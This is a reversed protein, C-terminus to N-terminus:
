AGAGTRRQRRHAAGTRAAEANLVTQAAGTDVVAIADVAPAGLALTIFGFQRLGDTRGPLANPQCGPGELNL